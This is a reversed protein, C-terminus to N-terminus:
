ASALETWAGNGRDSALAAEIFAMGRVGDEVGPLLPAVDAVSVGERHAHLLAAADGYLQAFAELYGEPHGAPVRTAQDAWESLGAMGRTLIRTPESLRTLRLTNPEAQVWELAGSEGYVRLRLGNEHGIAVQSCWLM